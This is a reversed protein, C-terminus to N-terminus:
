QNITGMVASRTSTGTKAKSWEHGNATSSILTSTQGGPGVVRGVCSYRTAESPNKGSQADFSVTVTQQINGDAPRPIDVNATGIRNSDNWVGSGKGATCTIRFASVDQHLTHVNVPVHIAFDAAWSYGPILLLGSLLGAIMFKNIRKM